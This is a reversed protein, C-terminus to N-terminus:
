GSLEVRLRPQALLAVYMQYLTPRAAPRGEKAEIARAVRATLKGASGAEVLSACEACAAWQGDSDTTGGTLEDNGDVLLVSMREALVFMCVPDLASCFDCRDVVVTMERRPVPVPAHGDAPENARTHHWEIPGGDLPNFQDLVTRCAACVHPEHGSM